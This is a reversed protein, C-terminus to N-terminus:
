LLWDRGSARDVAEEECLEEYRETRPPLDSELVMPITDPYDDEVEEGAEIPEGYLRKLVLAESQRQWKSLILLAEEAPSTPIYASM